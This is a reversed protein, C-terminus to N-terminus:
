IPSVDKTMQARQNFRWDWKVAIVQEKILQKRVMLWGKSEDGDIIIVDM